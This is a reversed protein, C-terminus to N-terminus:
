IMSMMAFFSIANNLAHTLMAYQLQRTKKYIYALVAGMLAYQLFDFFNFASYVHFYGFLVASLAINWWWGSNKFFYNMVVGRFILEEVIPAVVVALVGVFIIGYPGQSFTNQLTQQNSAVTMHGTALIRAMNIFMLGFIIALYGVFVYALKEWEIPHLGLNPSQQKVTKILVKAVFFTLLGVILVLFCTALTGNAPQGFMMALTQSGSVGFIQIGFDLLVGAVIWIIGNMWDSRDTM